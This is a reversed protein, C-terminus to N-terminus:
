SPEARKPASVDALASEVILREAVYHCRGPRNADLSEWEDEHQAILEALVRVASTDTM